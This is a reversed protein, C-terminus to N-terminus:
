SCRNLPNTGLKHKGINVTWRKVKPSSMIEAGMATGVFTGKDIFVSSHSDNFFEIVAFNGKNHFSTPVLCATSPRCPEFGFTEKMPVNLRVVACITKQAPVKVKCIYSVCAIKVKDGDEDSVFRAPVVHKGETRVECRSLDIQFGFQTM